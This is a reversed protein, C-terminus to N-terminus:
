ESSEGLRRRLEAVDSEDLPPRCAGAYDVDYQGREYIEDILPQLALKVDGDTSRLPISIEPLPKWLPMAYLEFHERKTARYVCAQYTTQHSPPIKWGPALLERREARTLDIEVFNVGGEVCEQRKQQYKDRGDGPRKNTPSLFEIVTVVRHGSSVDVIEIYRHTMEIEPVHLILPEAVATGGASELRSEAAAHGHEVVMVDPPIFRRSPELDESEVVVREQAWARLNEPLEPQLQFKALTILTSHVDGWFRELYPDMGPFPSRSSM